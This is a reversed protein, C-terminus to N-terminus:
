SECSEVEDSAGYKDHIELMDEFFKNLKEIDKQMDDLIDQITNM